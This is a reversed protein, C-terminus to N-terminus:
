HFTRKKGFVEPDKKFTFSAECLINDCVAGRWEVGMDSPAVHQLRIKGMKCAPCDVTLKHEIDSEITEKRIPM